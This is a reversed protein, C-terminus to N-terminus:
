RVHARSESIRQRRETREYTFCYSQFLFINPRYFIHNNQSFFVFTRDIWDVDAIQWATIIRRNRKIVSNVSKKPEDSCVADSFTVNFLIKKKHFLRQLLNLYYNPYKEHYFLYIFKNVIHYFADVPSYLFLLSISWFCMWYTLRVLSLYFSFYKATLFIFM